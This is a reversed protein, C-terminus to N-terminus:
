GASSRMSEAAAQAVERAAVVLDHPKHGSQIGHLGQIVLVHREHLSARAEDLCPEMAEMLAGFDPGAPDTAQMGAALVPEDIAQTLELAASLRQQRTFLALDHYFEVLQPFTRRLLPTSELMQRLTQATPDSRDGPDNAEEVFLASLKHAVLRPNDGAAIAMWGEIAMRGRVTRAHLLTEARTQLMDKVLAPETGDVVLLVGETLLTRGGDTVLRELSLIGERRAQEALELLIGALGDLPLQALPEAVNDLIAAHRPEAPEGSTTSRDAPPPWEIWGQQSLQRIQTLLRQRTEAITEPTAEEALEVETRIFGRVRESMNNLFRECVGEPAGILCTVLDKQDTERMLIQAERDTMREIDAFTGDVAAVLEEWKAFGYECALAHQAEQLSLEMTALDADSLRAARPLYKQVRGRVGADGSAFARQLDKSQKRLFELNARDPLSVPM